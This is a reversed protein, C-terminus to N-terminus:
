RITILFYHLSIKKDCENHAIALLIRSSPEYIPTFLNMDLLLNFKIAFSRMWKFLRQLIFSFKLLLKRM